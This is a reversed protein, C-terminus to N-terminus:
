FDVDRGNISYTNGNFGEKLKEEETMGKGNVRTRPDFPQKEIKEETKPKVGKLIKIINKM